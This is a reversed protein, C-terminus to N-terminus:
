NINSIQIKQDIPILFFLVKSSNLEQYCVIRDDSEDVEIFQM